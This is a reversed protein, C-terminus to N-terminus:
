LTFEFGVLANFVPRLGPETSLESGYLAFNIDVRNLDLGLGANLLGDSFGLRVDLVELMTVELGTGFKLLINEATAPAVWFDLIDRYDFLVTADSIYRGLVGLPPRYMVGLSLNQPIRGTPRDVPSENDLFAQLSAYENTVTPALLNQGTLGVAFREQLAYRLGVDLGIGTTVDFPEDLFLDSDLNSFVDELGLVSSSFGSTGLIFGKLLVGADLSGKWSAPLPVGLAFGGSLLLRESLTFSIGSSVGGEAVFNSNMSVGFGLGNGVYGFSIPGVLSSEAYTSTLLDAVDPESLLDGIDSEMGKFILSSITFVPGRVGFTLESVRFQEPAANFGAPNSFLTTYDDALAAHLGGLGATRASPQLAVDQDLLDSDAALSTASLLILLASAFLRKM